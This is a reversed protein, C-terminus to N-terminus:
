RTSGKAAPESHEIVQDCTGDSTDAEKDSAPSERSYPQKHANVQAFARKKIVM